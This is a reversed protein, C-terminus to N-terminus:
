YPKKLKMMDKQLELVINTLKQLSMDIEPLQTSIFMKAEWIELVDDAPVTYDQFEPNDSSLLFVGQEQVQNTIWKCIVGHKATVLVYIKGSALTYWNRVYSGIVTTSKPISLMTETGAEFARYVQGAPLMPLSLKPLKELFEPSAFGKLYSPVNGQAIYEINEHNNADVTVSLVRIKKAEAYESSHQQTLHNSYQVKPSPAQRVPPPTSPTHEISTQRPADYKKETLHSKTPLSDNSNQTLDENMLSDVSV